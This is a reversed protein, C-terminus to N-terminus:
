LTTLAAVILMSISFAILATHVAIDTLAGLVTAFSHMRSFNMTRSVFLTM